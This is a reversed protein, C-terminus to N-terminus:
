GISSMSPNFVVKFLVHTNKHRWGCCFFPHKLKELKVSQIRHEKFNGTLWKTKNNGQNYMCLQKSLSM